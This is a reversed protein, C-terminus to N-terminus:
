WGVPIMHHILHKGQHPCESDVLKSGQKVRARSSKARMKSPSGDHHGKVM